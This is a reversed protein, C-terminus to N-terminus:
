FDVPYEIKSGSVFDYLTLKRIEYYGQWSKRLAQIYTIQSNDKENQAVSYDLFGIKGGTYREKSMEFRKVALETAREALQLQYAQLNYRNVTSLLNRQFDLKEQAIIVAVDRLSVEARKRKCKATGWDLIPITFSLTVQEQDLPNRYANKFLPDSKSLGFSAYLDLSFGNDSKARAVNSQAELLRQQHDLEMTGNALAEQRAKEGNVEMNITPPLTLIIQGRRDLGLFDALAAQQEQLTNQLEDIQISLNLNNVEVELLEDETIKGLAFREKAIFLLTDNNAKNQTNLLLSVQTELLSFYLEVTQIASNELTEIYAREAKKYQVPEIKKQWKYSNYTIIPQRIGVNVLNALYSTTVDGQYVDLRQLGTSVYFQGGTFPIAQNVSLSASYNGVSQAVFSETGDPMTIKSISRNFMPLEGSLAIQPLLSKRYIKYDYNAIQYNHLAHKAEASQSQALIICSDLSLTTQAALPTSLFVFIAVRILRILRIKVSKIILFIRTLGNFGNFGHQM